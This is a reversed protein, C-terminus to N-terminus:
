ESHECVIQTVSSNHPVFSSTICFQYFQTASLDWSVTIPFHLSSCFAAETFPLYNLLPFVVLEWNDSRFTGLMVAYLGVLFILESFWCYDSFFSFVIDPVVTLVLFLFFCWQWVICILRRTYGYESHQRCSLGKQEYASVTLCLYFICFVSHFYIFSYIFWLQQSSLQLSPVQIWSIFPHILYSQSTEQTRTEKKCVSECNSLCRLQIQSCPITQFRFVCVCM